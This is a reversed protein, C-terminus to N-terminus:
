LGNRRRHARRTVRRGHAVPVCRDRGAARGAVAPFSRGFADEGRIAEEDCAAPQDGISKCQAVHV